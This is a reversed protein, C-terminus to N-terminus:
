FNEWLKQLNERFYWSIKRLFKLEELVKRLKKVNGGLNEKLLIKDNELNNSFEGFIKWNKLFKYRGARARGGRLIPDLSSNKFGEEMIKIEDRWHRICGMLYWRSYMFKILFYTSALATYACNNSDPSQTQCISVCLDNPSHISTDSMHSHPNPHIINNCWLDPANQIAQVHGAFDRVLDYITINKMFYSGVRAALRISSLNLSYSVWQPVYKSSSLFFSESYPFNKM